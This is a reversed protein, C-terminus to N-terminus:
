LALAGLFRALGDGLWIPVISRRWLSVGCALAVGVFVLAFQMGEYWYEPNTMEHSVYMLGILVPTLIPGTRKAFRAALFGFYFLYEVSTAPNGLLRHLGTQLAAAIDVEGSFPSLVRPVLYLIAIILVAAADGRRGRSRIGLSSLDHRYHLFALVLIIVAASGPIVYWFACAAVALALPFLFGPQRVTKWGKVIILPAALFFGGYVVLGALVFKTTSATWAHVDGGLAFPITANLVLNVTFYALWVLFAQIADRTATDRTDLPSV